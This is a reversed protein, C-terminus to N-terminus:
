TSSDVDMFNNLHAFAATEVGLSQINSNLTNTKIETPKQQTQNKKRGTKGFSNM